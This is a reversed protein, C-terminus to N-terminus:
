QMKSTYLPERFYELVLLFKEHIYLPTDITWLETNDSTSQVKSWCLKM